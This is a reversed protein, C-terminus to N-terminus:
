NGEYYASIEPHLDCIMSAFLRMIRQDIQTDDYVTIEWWSLDDMEQRRFIQM